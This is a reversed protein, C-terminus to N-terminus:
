ALGWYDAPLLDVALRARELIADERPSQRRAVTHSWALRHRELSTPELASDFEEALVADHATSDDVPAAVPPELVSQEVAPALTAGFNAALIAADVANVVGDGNFDGDLWSMGTKGWNSALIVSDAHDVTGSYNADGPLRESYVEVFVDSFTATCLVGNVRSTVPLGVYVTQGMAITQSGVVTWATGNPSIEATYTDGVRTLRVWYPAVIDPSGAQPTQTNSGTALRYQLRIGYEPTVLLAINRSNAALSERMMVGAKAYAHTADIGEVLATIQGDGTLMRYAYHFQDSTSGINTGAGKVTFVGDDYTGSGAPTPGGVDGSTWPTPLPKVDVTVQTTGEIGAFAAKVTAVTPSAPATYLGGATIQGATATWAFAPQPVLTRGFQDRASANFQLTKGLDLTPSSPSVIISTLTANVTVLVDSTATMGDGDAITVRFGYDGAAYFTATTNKAGNTGNVSYTPAAAGAPRLTTTWTYTLAAEGGDDAGLVGLATTADVVPNPTASAPVAVTPISVVSVDAFSAECLETHSRSAVPLGVYITEGMAITQSGIVTWTSGDPSIEAVFVDDERTLRVWYPAVIGPSGAQATATTGAEILRYQWWIGYEPTVLLAVNASNAALSDRMMVGAKAYPDAEGETAHISAVRATIQGNGTLTRYAYHFQDGAGGIDLGGGLVTFIGEEYTAGGPTGVYGLDGSTWPIPLAGIVVSVESTGQISGHTATITDVAPSGPATYLGEATIEGVSTTWEFVPQSASVDGFQDHAVATFPVTAGPAVTPSSPSVVISAVASDVTVLVDSTTNRGEYNGITVRFGYDGAAYFTATTNKAGNTGNVSYTPAPAGAPVSTTTWTYTLGAEGGDDAGLVGLVTTTGVVPNPTASAPEVVTPPGVFAVDTLAATCLTGVIRSTVPLGVYITEGMAAITQSGVVTWESGDPSIEATYLAGARTLRVWYPAVISASGAQNAGTTSGEMLRYQLRIGYEPTVLLAINPSNTALSGRMMVGAKAYTNAADISEVRATIRGDGTMTQYVYQFADVTGGINAGGGSVSFTGDDFEGGGTVGVTGVDASVWPSPLAGIAVTVSSTGQISGVAARVTAMTPEGPATYLGSATITGVTATREFVPQPSLAVGFQDRAVASFQISTGPAVS